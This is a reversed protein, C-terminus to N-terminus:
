RANWANVLSRSLLDVNQEEAFGIRRMLQEHAIQGMFEETDDRIPFVIDRFLLHCLEHVVTKEVFDWDLVETLPEPPPDGDVLWQAVTLVARHANEHRQIEMLVTSDTDVETKGARIHVSWHSLGLREAWTEVMAEVTDLGARM